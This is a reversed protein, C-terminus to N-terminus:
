GTYHWTEDGATHTTEFCFCMIVRSFRGNVCGRTPVHGICYVLQAYMCNLSHHLSSVVKSVAVVRIQKPIMDGGNGNTSMQPNPGLRIVLTGPGDARGSQTYIKKVMGTVRGQAMGKVFMGVSYQAVNRTDVSVCGPVPKLHGAVPGRQVDTCTVQRVPPGRSSAQRVPKAQGSLKPEEFKKHAVSEYNKATEFREDDDTSDSEDSSM